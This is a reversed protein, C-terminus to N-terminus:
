RDVHRRNLDRLDFVPHPRGLFNADAAPPRRLNPQRRRVIQQALVHVPEEARVIFVAFYSVLTRRPGALCLAFLLRSAVPASILHFQNSRPWRMHEPLTQLIMYMCVREQVQCPFSNAISIITILYKM